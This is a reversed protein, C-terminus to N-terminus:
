RSGSVGPALPRWGAVLVVLALVVAGGLSAANGVVDITAMEHFHGVHYALHPVSFVLWAIATAQVIPTTLWVAAAVTVVGLALSLFGVDRILHENYPGDGAIWRRGLGPFSDYFARPVLGAWIGLVAAFVVLGVLAVRVATRRASSTGDAVSAEDATGPAPTRATTM